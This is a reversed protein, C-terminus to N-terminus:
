VRERCSARGIEPMICLAHGNQLLDVCQEFVAQNKGLQEFGDRSRYAPMIKSFRLFKTLLPNKFIDARALFSVSFQKPCIDLVALADMLANLHNPAFIITGEQPINEAGVVTFPNFFREFTKLVYSKSIRYVASLKYIESM